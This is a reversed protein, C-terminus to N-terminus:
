SVAERQVLAQRELATLFNLTHERATSLGIQYESSIAEAIAECSLRQELSRWIRAGIRNTSFLSGKGLHLIVMGDAHFSAAAEPTVVFNQDSIKDGMSREGMPVELFIRHEM